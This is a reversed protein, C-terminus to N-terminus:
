PQAGAEKANKSKHSMARHIDPWFEKVMITITDLTLQTQWTSLVHSFTRDSPVFMHPNTPTSLFTSRPHYSYTSITAATASGFVESYNFQSHGSDSRTVVIRTAAYGTRRWFGGKSSQYFRPDQHLISSYVAGVM